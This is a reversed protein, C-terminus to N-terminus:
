GALDAALGELGSSRSAKVLVAVGAEVPGVRRLVEDPTLAPLGYKETGVALVEVGLERARDAVERHGADPDDLEAMAGLVAIRREADM